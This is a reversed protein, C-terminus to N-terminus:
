KMQRKETKGSQGGNTAIKGFRSQGLAVAM